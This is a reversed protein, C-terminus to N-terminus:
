WLLHGVWPAIIVTFVGALLMVISAIVGEENGIQFAKATGGGHSAAGLCAGKGLSSRIALLGLIAEGITMGILGTLVVFLATLNSDGHVMKSAEIAFPTTVSRMALSRQLLEPLGFGRALLVSSSVAVTMAVVVGVSLSLWHQRILQRHEHIPIAFAVTAPGLLWLLWHSDLMYADYSIHYHLLIAVLIIPTLLLPMLLMTRVRGYLWKSLYYIAVTLLLFGIGAAQQPWPATMLTDAM